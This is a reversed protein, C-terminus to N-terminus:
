PLRRATKVDIGLPRFFETMRRGLFDQRRFFEILQFIAGFIDHCLKAFRCHLQRFPHELLPTM